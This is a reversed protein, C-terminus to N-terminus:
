CRDPRLRMAGAAPVVCGRAAGLDGDAGGGDGQDCLWLRAPSAAMRARVGGSQARAPCLEPDRNRKSENVTADNGVEFCKDDLWGIVMTSPLLRGSIHCALPSKM